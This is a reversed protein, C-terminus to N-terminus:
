YVVRMFDKEHNLLKLVDYYRCEDTPIMAIHNFFNFINGGYKNELYDKEPIPFFYIDKERCPITSFGIKHRIPLAAFKEADEYCEIAMEVLLNDKNLRSKRKNWVAAASDFDTDHNFHLVVDDLGAVPYKRRLNVEYEERIFHLPLGMYYDFHNLLNIYDEPEVFMNIFPSLFQMGLSNYTIGGWCHNAVISIKSERVQIYRNFDFAPLCFVKAPIVKELSINLLKLIKQVTQPEKQNMNILYDYQRELLEDIKIVEIGDIMSFLYEENLVVAEIEINSKLREAEFHKYYYDYEIRDGWVIVKKM